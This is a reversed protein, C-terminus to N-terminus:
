INFNGRSNENGHKVSFIISRCAKISQLADMCGIQENTYIRQFVANANGFIQFCTRGNDALKAVVNWESQPIGRSVALANGIGTLVADFSIIYKHTEEMEDM